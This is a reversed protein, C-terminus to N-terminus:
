AAPLLWRLDARARQAALLTLGAGLIAWLSLAVVTAAVSTGAQAAELGDLARSLPSLDRLASVLPSGSGSSEAGLTVLAAVAALAAAPPRGAVAVVGQGLVTLAVAATVAVVAFAAPREISEHDAAVLVAMLLLAVQGAVIGLVPLLPAILQRALRQSAVLRSRSLAPRVAWAAAAAALLGLAVAAPLALADVPVPHRREASARLPAAAVESLREREQASYRPIQEVGESLGDALEGSGDRLAGSGDVLERTGEALQSTGRNLVRTGDRLDGAGSALQSAGDALAASGTRAQASGDALQAIGGTLQPAQAALQATAESLQALGSSLRSTGDTLLTGQAGLAQIEGNIRQAETVAENVWVCAEPPLLESCQAAWGTITDTLHQAMQLFPEVTAILEHAGADLQQAGDRLDRAGQDLQAAQDPLAATQRRLEQLGDDLQAIGGALEGAGGAAEAAGSSLRAAGSSLESAGDDLRTAGDALGTSGAALQATGDRLQEAGEAAESLADRVSGTSLVINDIFTQAVQANMAAIAAVTVNGALRGALRNTADDTVLRLQATRASGPDDGAPSIAAASVDSPIILVAGYDGRRLGTLADDRHTIVWDFNDPRDDGTLEAALLRGVAVPQEEGAPTTLTVIEDENVVAARVDAARPTRAGDAAAHVAMVALPLVLALALLLRRRSRTPTTAATM